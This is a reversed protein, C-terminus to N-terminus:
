CALIGGTISEDSGNEVLTLRSSVCGAGRAHFPCGSGGSRVTASKTDVGSVSSSFITPSPLLESASILRTRDSFPRGANFCRYGSM